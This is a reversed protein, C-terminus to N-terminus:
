DLFVAGTKLSQQFGNEIFTTFVAFQDCTSRAIRFSAQDPSVLGEVRPSIHQLALHELVKYRVSLLSIPRYNAAFSPDKGPKEIAIM